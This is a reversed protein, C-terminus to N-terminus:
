SALDGGQRFGPKAFLVICGIMGIVSIYYPLYSLVHNTMPVASVSAAFVPRQSVTEWANSLVMSVVVAIILIIVYLAIFLPNTSIFWSTIILALTLGIFVALFWLDLKALQSQSAQLVEVTAASSQIATVNLLGSYIQVGVLHLILFGVGFAFLLVGILLVDQASGRRNMM